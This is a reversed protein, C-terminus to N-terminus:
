KFVTWNLRNLNWFLVAGCACGFAIQGAGLGIHGFLLNGTGFLVAYILSFGLLWHLFNTRLTKERLAAAPAFPKWGLAAPRVHNYFAQLKERPEPATLFTVSLWTITTLLTTVLMLWAFGHPQSSDLPALQLNPDIRHLLGIVPMAHRSQLLTSFVAAASLASIESWANIRWWFWRLIFVLGAGAGIAMLFRWAGAISTMYCTVIASALTVIVTAIRSATVYHHAPANKRIFRSYVDNIMYSASLNMMTGVTSMYAAAFGALMLGRLSPPLYRIMVTIYAGEKDPTNPLVVLAVLATLIWPWPRLAYHAVNFWLTAALSNKEDKASFIRQTIYGGGGPEAGPYSGSWWNVSLLVLFSFFYGSGPVPVLALSDRGLLKDAEHVKDALAHMGGVAHVAFYALLIVMSMKLVFQVLDTWLVAWMGSITSYVLTIGLCIFVAELKGLGLTLRLITAMAFNVWGMTLMNVVLVLYM